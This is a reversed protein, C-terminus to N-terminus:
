RPAPTVRTSERGTSCPDDRKEGNRVKGGEMNFNKKIEDEKTPVEAGRAAEEKSEVGTLSDVGVGLGSVPCEVPGFRSLHSGLSVSM